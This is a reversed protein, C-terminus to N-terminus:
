EMTSPMEVLPQIVMRIISQEMVDSAIDWEVSLKDGYREQQIMMYSQLYDM